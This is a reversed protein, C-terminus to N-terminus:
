LECELITKAPFVMRTICILEAVDTVEVRAYGLGAQHDIRIARLTRQRRSIQCREIGTRLEVARGPWGHVARGASGYEIGTVCMQRLTQAGRWAPYNRSEAECEPRERVILGD